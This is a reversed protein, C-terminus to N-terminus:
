NPQPYNALWYDYCKQCNNAYNFPEDYEPYFVDSYYTDGEDLFTLCEDCAIHESLSHVIHATPQTMDTNYCTPRVNTQEAPHWPLSYYNALTHVTYDEGQADCWNHAQILHDFDIIFEGSEDYIEFSNIGGPSVSYDIEYIQLTMAINQRMTFCITLCEYFHNIGCEYNDSIDTKTPGAEVRGLLTLYNAYDCASQM